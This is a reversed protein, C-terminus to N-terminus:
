SFAGLGRQLSDLRAGACLTEQCSRCTPLPNLATRATQLTVRHGHVIRMTATVSRRTLASPKFGRCQPIRVRGEPAKHCSKQTTLRQQRQQGFCYPTQNLSFHTESAWLFRANKNKQKNAHTYVCIVMCLTKCHPFRITCHTRYVLCHPFRITCHTRYM